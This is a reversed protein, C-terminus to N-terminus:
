EPTVKGQYSWFSRQHDARTLKRPASPPAFEMVKRLFRAHDDPTNLKRFSTLPTNQAMYHLFDRQADFLHQAYEYLMMDAWNKEKLIELTDDSHEAVPHRQQQEYLQGFSSQRCQEIDPDFFIFGFAIDFRRISEELHEPLGIICKRRLIEMAVEIDAQTIKSEMNQSLARVLHNSELLDSAAYEELTMSEHETNHAPSWTAEKLFYFMDVAREVPNQILTFMRGKNEPTFIDSIEHIRSAIVIDALGSQALGLHKARLIGEPHITDVNIYKLGDVHIIDIEEDQGHKGQVGDDDAMTYQGCKAYVEEVVAGGFRSTFWFIPTDAESKPENIDAMNHTIPDPFSLHTAPHEQRAQVVGKQENFLQVIYEYLIMDAWNKIALKNWADSTHELAPHAHKNSGGGIFEQQCHSIDAFSKGENFGFFADFRRISEDMRDMLGVLVKTRLIEKAVAIDDQTIKGEENQSLMRVMLNSEVLPSDAYQGITMSALEPNYTPEWTATQLYYFLSIVRQIPHRFLSFMVGRNSPTFIESIEHVHSTIVIDALGSQALGLRKARAIGDPHITDVNVYRASLEPIEVIALTEDQDHGDRVGVDSAMVLQSCFEYMDKVTSGGSKAVHWFLPIDDDNRPETVDAMNLELAAPLPIHADTVQPLDGEELLFRRNENDFIGSFSCLAVFALSTTAILKLMRKQKEDQKNVGREVRDNM